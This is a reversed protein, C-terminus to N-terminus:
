LRDFYNNWLHIFVPILVGMVMLGLSSWFLMWRFGPQDPPSKIFFSAVTGVLGTIIFVVTLCCAIVKKEGETSKKAFAAMWM